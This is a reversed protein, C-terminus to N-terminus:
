RVGERRCRRLFLYEVRVLLVAAAIGAMSLIGMIPQGEARYLVFGQVASFLAMLTATTVFLLHFHKLSM